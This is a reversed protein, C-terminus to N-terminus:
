APIGLLEAMASRLAPIAVNEVGVREIVEFYVKCKPETGSPRVLVRSGDALRIRIVDAPRADSLLDHFDTVEVGCLSSPREVARIRAMLEAIDNPGEARISWQETVYRGYTAAIADLEAVLNSGRAKVAAAMDAFVLATGIGDKDRVLNFTTFGIAEEYSLVHRLEPRELAARALWKFGTLTEVYHVGAEEALRSLLTSSVLTTAVLRDPGSEATAALLHRALLWGMEDGRLGRWGTPADADAVAVALRDADPDNAVVLDANEARALAIALDLAGKEEPNPFAVTPFKGDPLFQEPVPIVDGFGADHLLGTCLEGGVGHMATYVIRLDGRQERTAAGTPLELAAARYAAVIDESVEHRLPHTPPALPIAEARLMSAAAEDIRASIQGDMPEVIQAGDGVYVKYGNDAPPNHSATVMIGAACDLHLTAFALLPTPVVHPFLHAPIGAAAFIAATDEAFEFSNRRADYGIVVGRQAVRSDHEALWRAFGIAAQRVVVRNMRMPGAGLEGRLGATGFQLRGSFREALAEPQGSQAAIVLEALEAKTEDDPDVSAWARAQMMLDDVASAAVHDM